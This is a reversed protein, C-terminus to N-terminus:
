KMVVIRRGEMKFHLTQTAELAKLVQSINKDRSIRGNLGDSSPTGEYQIEVDYWRSIKRMVSQISEDNFWFQGKVWSLSEAVDAQAITIQGNNLSAQQGPKLYKASSGNVTSIKIRGESLTTRSAPEDAYSNINFHTGLVEVQQGNSRVIFPHTKDRAVEFYAEGKISVERTELQEFSAPFTISSAANLWVNTGDSLQVKWQGGNPTEVTNLGHDPLASNAPNFTLQGNGNKVAHAGTQSIIAGNKADTINISQGNSLKLIAKNKGPAIDSEAYVKQSNKAPPVVYYITATIIVGIIAAAAMMRSGIKLFHRENGPLERFVRKGIQTIKRTTIVPEDAENHQLYWSELLAKEEETCTGEHYKRFLETLQKKEM